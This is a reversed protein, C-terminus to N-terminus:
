KVAREEELDPELTGQLGLQPHLIAEEKKSAPKNRASVMGAVMEWCSSPGTYKSTSALPLAAMVHSTCPKVRRMSQLDMWPKVLPGAARARRVRKGRGEKMMVSTHYQWLPVAQDGAWGPAEELNVM